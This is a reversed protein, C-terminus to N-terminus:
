MVILETRSEKIKCNDKFFCIGSKKERGLDKIVQPMCGFIGRSNEIIEKANVLHSFYNGDFKEEFRKSPNCNCYKVM